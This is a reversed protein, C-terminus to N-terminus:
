KIEVCKFGREQLENMAKDFVEDKSLNYNIKSIKALTMDLLNPLFMQKSKLSYKYIKGEHTVVISYDYKRNNAVAFDSGTPPINTPHNHMGILSYPPYNKHIRELDKKSYGVELRGEKGFAQAVRNGEKDFVYSDEGDTGNRHTLMAIAQKRIQQNLRANDSIKDFKSKFEKSHIYDMDVKNTGVRYYSEGKESLSKTNIDKPNRNEEDELWYAGISCRCNPHVPIDPCDDVEYIGEPLNGGSNSSAIERCNRCAGPEIYWKCYKYDNQKLSLVQAEHQVRSSETRAIREAAYTADGVTKKVMPKLYKIMEKPNDGRIMATAVLGDLRAKLNDINAWINKSFAGVTINATARDIVAPSTWINNSVTSRLIGAQRKMETFYDANVKDTIKTEIDMELDLLHTGIESKILELQNIRMTANYVRLRDNIEQPFDSYKIVKKGQARMINARNVVQRALREYEAMQDATVLNRIGGVRNLEHEIQKNINDIAIQYSRNLVKNFRSDKQLQKLQWKRENEARLAWYNNKM